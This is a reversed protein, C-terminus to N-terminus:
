YSSLCSEGELTNGNSQKLKSIFQKPGIVGIRKKQSSIGIFLNQLSDFLTDQFELDLEFKSVLDELPSGGSWSKGKSDSSHSDIVVAGQINGDLPADLEQYNKSDNRSHSKPNSPM